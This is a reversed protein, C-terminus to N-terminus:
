QQISHFNFQHILALKIKIKISEKSKENNIIKVDNLNPFEIKFIPNNKIAHKYNITYSSFTWKLLRIIPHQHMEKIIKM